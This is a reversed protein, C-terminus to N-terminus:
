KELDAVFAEINALDEERGKSAARYTALADRALPLCRAEDAGTAHLAQALEFKVGAVLVPDLTDAQAIDLARELFPVALSPRDSAQYVGSLGALTWVLDPHDKGLKTERIKLARQHLALAEDFKGQEELVNGLNSLTMALDPHEPGLIAEDITLSEEYLKVAEEFRKQATRINALNTLATSRITADHDPRAALRGIIDEFLAAAVDFDGAESRIQAINNMTGLLRPHDEPLNARRIELARDLLPLAEDLKGRRYQGVGMNMLTTAVDLHDPGLTHERIKLARNYRADAEEYKALDVYVAATNTLSRAVLPHDPGLADERIAVAREHLELAEDYQARRRLVTGLNDILGARATPPDAAQESLALADRLAREAAEHDGTETHVSALHSAINSREHPGGDAAVLASEAFRAWRKGAEPRAARRGEAMILLTAPRLQGRPYGAEIASFVARELTDVCEPIRGQKLHVVGRAHLVDARLRPADLSAVQEQLRESRKDADDYLGAAVRASIQALEARAEDVAPSAERADPDVAYTECRTATPLTGLVRSAREVVTTDASEFVDLAADFELLQHQLCSMRADLLAASQEGRQTAECVRTHSQAWADAHDDLVSRVREATSAAIPSGSSEFGQHVASWRADNWVPDLAREAGTCASDGRPTMAFATAGIAGLGLVWPWATRSTPRLARELAGLMEGMSPWRDQAHPQLGRDLANRVSTPVGRTESPAAPAGKAKLVALEMLTGAEFAREAYLADRLALSFAYVDSRVTTEGDMQEPAMYYPTGVMRGAVSVSTHMGSPQMELTELAHEGTDEPSMARALGFDSVRVWGDHGVLVNAPKFDRHLIGKAHAAELGRGADIYKRLIERWPRDPSRRVWAGLDSGEVLEMAIYTRDGERGVDHVTVVHPHSLSALAKAERVLSGHQSSAATASEDPTARLVKLAIRRDLAPDYAAYVEGVGGAGVRTVILYRGFLRGPGLAETDDSSSDRQPLTADDTGMARM